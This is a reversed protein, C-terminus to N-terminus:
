RGGLGQTGRNKSRHEAAMGEFPRGRDGAWVLKVVITEESSPVRKEFAAETNLGTEREGM